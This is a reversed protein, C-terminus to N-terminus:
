VIAPFDVALHAVSTRVQNFDVFVHDIYDFELVLWRFVSVLTVWALVLLGDSNVLLVQVKIALFLNLSFQGGTFTLTLLAAAVHM